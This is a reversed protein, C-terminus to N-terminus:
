EEEDAGDKEREMVVCLLDKPPMTGNDVMATISVVRYGKSGHSNLAAQLTQDREGTAYFALNRREARFVRYEYM